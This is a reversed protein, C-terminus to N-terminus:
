AGGSLEEWMMRDFACRDIRLLDAAFELIRKAEAYGQVAVGVERLLRHAHRDVAISPLGVLKALYDVTKFGVGRVTRLLDRHAAASLWRRLDYVTELGQRSFFSVLDRLRKPKEEHSWSLAASFKNSSMATRFASISNM